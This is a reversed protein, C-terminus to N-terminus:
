NNSLGLKDSLKIIEQTSLGTVDKILPIEMGKLLMREAMEKQTEKKGLQIGESRGVLRSKERITKVAQMIDKEKSPVLYELKKALEEGEQRHERDLMYMISSKFYDRGALRRVLDPDKEIWNVFTEQSSQKLLLELMDAEGHTALEAESAQGLDVLQLPRFMMERAMAPEQFCDFLDLSYPYPSKKGSYLVLNAILPLTKHGQRIHERCIMVNYELVKFPLLFYPVTQQEVLLFLYAAQGDITCKYVADSFIQRLNEDVYSKNTIQLTDWDIRRVLKEPLHAKLLDQAVKLNTMAEKFLGDNVHHIHKTM